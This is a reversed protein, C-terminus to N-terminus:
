HVREIQVVRVRQNADVLGGDLVLDLLEIHTLSEILRELHEVVAIPPGHVVFHLFCVQIVQDRGVLNILHALDNSCIKTVIPVSPHVPKGADEVFAHEGAKDRQDRYLLAVRFM